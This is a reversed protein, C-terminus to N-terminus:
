EGSLERCPPPQDPGVLFTREGGELGQARVEDVGLEGLVIAADDLQHAVSHQRLEGADYFRHTSGHFSLLRDCLAIGGQRRFLADLEADTDIEAVHHDVAVVDV